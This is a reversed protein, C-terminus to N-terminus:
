GKMGFCRTYFLLEELDIYVDKGDISLKFVKDRKAMENMDWEIRVQHKGSQDTLYGVGHKLLETFKPKNRLHDLNKTASGSGLGGAISSM